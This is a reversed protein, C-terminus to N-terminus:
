RHHQQKDACSGCMGRAFGIDQHNPTVVDSGPIDTVVIV